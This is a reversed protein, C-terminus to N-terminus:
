GRPVPCGCARHEVMARGPWADLLKHTYANEADIWARTPPSNQDELWRYPDTIAVGHLTEQVNDRHAVPPGSSQAALLSSILLFPYCCLILRFCKM